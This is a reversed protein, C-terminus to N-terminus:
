ASMSSEIVLKDEPKIELHSVKILIEGESATADRANFVLNTIIQRLQTVNSKVICDQDEIAVRLQITEPLAQQLFKVSEKVFPVLDIPQSDIKTQRSFDLIQRILQEALQGEEYVKKLRVKASEPVDPAMAIIESFGMMVTLINNFDHAVGAALQGVAALRDQLMARVEVDELSASQQALESKLKAHDEKLAEERLKRDTIDLSLWLVSRDQCLAKPTISVRGEFWRHGAVTNMQYTLVQLEETELARNIVEVFRDADPRSMVDHIRQGILKRAGEYRESEQRGVVDLYRGDMDLIFGLDPVRTTSHRMAKGNTKHM